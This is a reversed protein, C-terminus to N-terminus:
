HNFMELDINSWDDFVEINEQRLYKHFSIFTKVLRKYGAALERRVMIIPPKVDEEKSPPASPDVEPTFYHLSDVESHHMDLILEIDKTNDTYVLLSLPIPKDLTQKLLERMVNDFAAESQQVQTMVGASLTDAM